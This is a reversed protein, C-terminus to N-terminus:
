RPADSVTAFWAGARYTPTVELSTGNVTVHITASEDWGWSAANVGAAAAVDVISGDPVHPGVVTASGEGNLEVGVVIAGAPEREVLPAHSATDLAWEGGMSALLTVRTKRGDRQVTARCARVSEGSSLVVIDEAAVMGTPLEVRATTVTLRSRTRRGDHSTSYPRSINWYGNLM